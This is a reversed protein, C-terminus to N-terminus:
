RLCPSHSGNTARKPGLTIRSDLRHVAVTVPVPNPHMCRQKQFGKLDPTLREQPASSGPERGVCMEGRPLKVCEM